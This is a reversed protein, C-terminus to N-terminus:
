FIKKKKQDTQRLNSQPHFSNIENIFEQLPEQVREWIFFIDDIYRWLISRKKKVKSWIKERLTAMFLIAYPPVFKTCIATGRIQKCTKGSFEFINNKLLLKALEILTDKAVEKDVRSDLFDKLFDLSKDHPTNPYLGVVYIACLITGERHQALEKIKRLFNNSEKINSKVKQVIPQLHKQHLFRLWFNSTEM